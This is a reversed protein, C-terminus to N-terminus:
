LGRAVTYDLWEPPVTDQSGDPFTVLIGIKEVTVVMLSDRLKVRDGPRLGQAEQTTM